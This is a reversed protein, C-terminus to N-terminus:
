SRPALITVPELTIVGGVPSSRAMADFVLLLAGNVAVALLIAAVLGEIRATLSLLHYM